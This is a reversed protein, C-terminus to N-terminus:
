ESIISGYKDVLNGFSNWSVYAALYYTGNDTEVSYDYDDIKSYLSDDFILYGNIDVFCEESKHFEGTGNKMLGEGSIRYEYIYEDGNETYYPVEFTDVYPKKNIDYYYEFENTNKPNYPLHEFTNEYDNSLFTIGNELIQKELDFKENVIRSPIYLLIAAIILVVCITKTKNTHNNLQILSTSNCKPCVTAGNPVKSNCNTCYHPAKAILKKRSILYIFGAFFTFFFGCSVWRNKHQINNAKADINIAAAVCISIALSLAASVILFIYFDSTFITTFVNVGGLM